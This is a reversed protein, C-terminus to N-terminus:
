PATRINAANDPGLVTNDPLLRNQRLVYALV